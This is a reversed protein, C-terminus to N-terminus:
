RSTPYWMKFCMTCQFLNGHTNSVNFSGCKPCTQPVPKFQSDYNYSCLKCPEKTTGVRNNWKAAVVDYEEGYSPSGYDVITLGCGPCFITFHRCGGDSSFQPTAGCCPCPKVIPYNTM